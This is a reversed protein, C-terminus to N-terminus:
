PQVREFLVNFTAKDVAQFYTGRLCDAVPDYALRYTSGPYNVDRLEVVVGPTAADRTVRAQAVHISKPNFYSADVVGHDDVSKITLVYGGDPRRWAGVLRADDSAQGVGSEGAVPVM